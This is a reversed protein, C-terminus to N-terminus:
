GTLPIILVDGSSLFRSCSLHSVFYDAFLRGKNGLNSIFMNMLHAFAKEGRWFLRQSCLGMSTLAYNEMNPYRNITSDIMLIEVCFEKCLTANVHYSSIERVSVRPLNREKGDILGLFSRSSNSGFM